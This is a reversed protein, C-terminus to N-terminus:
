TVLIFSRDTTQEITTFKIPTLTAMMNEVNEDTITFCDEIFLQGNYEVILPGPRGVASQLPTSM